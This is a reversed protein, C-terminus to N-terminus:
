VLIEMWKKEVEEKLYSKAKEYSHKRFAEMDSETFLRIIGDALGEASAFLIKFGNEGEDVFAQMGYCRDFGVIPLGSGVAELLTIGFAEGLSASIYAEYNQYREDMKQFGCLNVYDGCKLEHIQERLKQEDGGQGYIDLTVDPIVSRAIVVAEIILNVRKDGALRGVTLLSHKKRSEPMRIKDLYAVPITEIRADFGEYKRFQEKMLNSQVDTSTVFFDIKEPHSFAYEFRSFWLIHEEDCCWFEYHNMHVIFGIRAPAVNRIFAAKDIFGGGGEILVVDDKTLRLCSIMYEVLAEKSYLTRDPLKYLVLDGEAIEEYAVSGDENFFRRLYMYEHGDVPMYYESYIRCYTYYDKRVACGNSIMLVSHIFDSKEDTLFVMYYVNSNLFFYKAIAKDRSYNYREETFTSELQGLTYTAPSTRCDTFFEYLWIVESDLLGLIATERQFHCGSFDNTFVFKAELGLDRFVRARYSLGTEIGGKMWFDAHHFSYIM